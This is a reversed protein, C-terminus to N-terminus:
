RNPIAWIKGEHVCELEFHAPNYKKTDYKDRKVLTDLVPDLLHQSVMLRVPSPGESLDPPTGAAILTTLKEIREASPGTQRILDIKVNPRWQRYPAVIEEEWQSLMDNSIGSLFPIITIPATSLALKADAEPTTSQRGCAGFAAVM